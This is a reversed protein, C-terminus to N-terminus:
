TQEDLRMRIDETLEHFYVWPSFFYTALPKVWWPCAYVIRGIDDSYDVREYDLKYGKRYYWKTFKTRFGM